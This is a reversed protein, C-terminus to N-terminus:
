FTAGVLSFAMGRQPAGTVLTTSLPAVGVGGLNWTGASSRGVLALPADDPDAKKTDDDPVDLGEDVHRTLYFGVVAGGLLGLSSLGGTLREDWTGHKDHIGAYLLFPLAGAAVSLGAVRLMRRPTTNTQPALVFGVVVGAAAGVASNLSYAERQAPQMLMGITLGGVTGIGGLTDILAVDGTTLKKDQAFGVTGLIGVASGITAGVLVGSGTTTGGNAGEATGGILGGVVGGWVSGAGVTRVQSETAHYKKAIMPATFAGVAGLAIGMPVAGAAENDAFFSGIMAGVTGGFLAGHVLSATKGSHTTTDAPPPVPQQDRDSFKDDTIKVDAPPPPAEVIGLAANAQRIIVRAREAAPGTPSKVVAEVALQKADLYMKSDLLEQARDALSIAVQEALLPDQAGPPVAPPPSWVNPAPLPPLPAPMPSAPPTPKPAPPTPKTAPPEAYPDVPQAYVNTAAALLM